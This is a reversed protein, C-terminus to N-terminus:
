NNDLKGEIRAIRERVDTLTTSINTLSTRLLKIEEENKETQKRFMGWTVLGTGLMTLVTVVVAAPLPVSTVVASSAVATGSLMSAM